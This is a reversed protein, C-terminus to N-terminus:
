VSFKIGFLSALFKLGNNQPYSKLKEGIKIKLKLNNKDALNELWHVIKVLEKKQPLFEVVSQYYKEIKQWDGKLSAEEKLLISLEEIKKKGSIFDEREKEAKRYFILSLYSGLSLILIIELLLFILKKRFKKPSIFSFYPM